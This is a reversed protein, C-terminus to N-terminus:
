VAFTETFDTLEIVKQSDRETGPSNLKGGRRRDELYVLITVFIGCLMLSALVIETWFYGSKYSLTQDHISGLLIPVASLLLNEFSYAIGYAFGVMNKKTVLAICPWFVATYNAFFLGVGILTWAIGYNTTGPDADPLFAIILHILFLLLCSAFILYPRKGFKDAVKGFIATTLAPIIYIIPIIDGATASTFGFREVMLNSLNNAFGYFCVYMFGSNVILLYYMRDLNKIDRFSIKDIKKDVPSSSIEQMDAKKDLFNVGIVAGFSVLCLVLGFYYPVSVEGSWDVLKPGIFSSLSSGLRAVCIGIGLAFSLEKGIFWKTIMASKCVIICDGGIAYILQGIIMLTFDLQVVGATIVGQGIVRIVAFITYALRLGLLDIILGGLLPLIINPFSAATFIINFEFVKIQLKDMLITQLAQPLDYCYYDGLCTLATFALTLWRYSSAHLGPNKTYPQDDPNATIMSDDNKIPVTPADKVELM